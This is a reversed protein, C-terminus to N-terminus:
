NHIIKPELMWFILISYAFLVFGFVFFFKLSHMKRGQLNLLSFISKKFIIVIIIMKMKMKQLNLFIFEFSDKKERAFECSGFFPSWCCFFILNKSKYFHLLTCAFFHGVCHSSHLIMHLFGGDDCGDGCCFCFIFDVLSCCLLCCFWSCTWNFFKSQKYRWSAQLQHLISLFFM